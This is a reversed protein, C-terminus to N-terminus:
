FSLQISENEQLQQWKNFLENILNRILNLKQQTLDSSYPLGHQELTQRLTSLFDDDRYHQLQEAQLLSVIVETQSAKTPLETSLKIPRESKDLEFDPVNIGEAILGYFAQQYGLTSEVAYHILDHYIFFDTKNASWTTTGDVRTCIMVSTGQKRKKFEIKM